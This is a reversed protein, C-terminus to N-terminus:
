RKEESRVATYKKICFRHLNIDFNRHYYVFSLLNHYFINTSNTSIGNHEVPEEYKKTSKRPRGRPRGQRQPVVDSVTSTRTSFRDNNRDAGNQDTDTM